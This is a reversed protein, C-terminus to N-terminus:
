ATFFGHNNLDKEHYRVLQRFDVDGAL